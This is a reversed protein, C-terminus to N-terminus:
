VDKVDFKQGVQSPFKGITRESAGHGCVDATGPFNVGLDASRRLIALADQALVHGWDASGM